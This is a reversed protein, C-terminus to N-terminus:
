KPGLENSRLLRTGESSIIELANGRRVIEIESIYTSFVLQYPNNDKSAFVQHLCGKPRCIASLDACRVTEFHIVILRLDSEQRYRSLDGVVNVPSKCTHLVAEIEGRVETPLTTVEAPSSAGPAESLSPQEPQQALTLDAVFVLLLAAAASRSALAYDSRKESSM